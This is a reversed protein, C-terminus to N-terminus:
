LRGYIIGKVQAKDVALKTLVDDVALENLYCVAVGPTLDSCADLIESLTSDFEVCIQCFEVLNYIRSSETDKFFLCGKLVKEACQQSIYCAIGSQKPYLDYFLHHESTLENQSYKVLEQVLKNDSM